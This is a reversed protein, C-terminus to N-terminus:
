GARYQKRLFAKADYGFLRSDNPDVDPPQPQLQWVPAAGLAAVNVFWYGPQLTAKRMQKNNM